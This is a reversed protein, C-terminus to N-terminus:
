IQFALGTLATALGVDEILWGRAVSAGGDWIAQTAGSPTVSPQVTQTIDVATFNAVFGIISVPHLNGATVVKISGFDNLVSAAVTTGRRFKFITEGNNTNNGARGTLVCRYARGAKWVFNTAATSAMTETGAATTLVTTQGSSFQIGRQLTASNIASELAVLDNYVRIGFLATSVKTNPSPPITTVV